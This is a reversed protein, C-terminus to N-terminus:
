DRKSSLPLEPLPSPSSVSATPAELLSSVLAPTRRRLIKMRRLMTPPQAVPRPSVPAPTLRRTTTTPRPRPRPRPLRPPLHPHRPPQTSRRPTSLVVSSIRRASSRAILPVLAHQYAIRSTRRACSTRSRRRTNTSAPSLVMRASASSRSIRRYDMDTAIGDTTVDLFRPTRVYECWNAGEIVEKGLDGCLLPCMTEQQLCWYRQTDEKSCLLDAKRESAYCVSQMWM